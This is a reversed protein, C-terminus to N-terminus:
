ESLFVIKALCIARIWPEPKLLMGSGGGFPTDDVLRHKDEAYERPNVTEITLMKKEIAKQLISYKTNALILEPFLTLFIIKM